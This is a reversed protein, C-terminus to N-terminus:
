CVFPLTFFHQTEAIPAYTSALIHFCHHLAEPSLAAVVNGEPLALGLQLFVLLHCCLRCLLTGPLVESCSVKGGVKQHSRGNLLPM